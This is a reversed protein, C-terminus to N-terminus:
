VRQIHVHHHALSTHLCINWAWTSDVIHLTTKGLLQHTRCAGAHTPCGEACVDALVGPLTTMSHQMERSTMHGM